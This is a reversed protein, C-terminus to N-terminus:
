NTLITKSYLLSIQQKQEKFDSSDKGCLSPFLPIGDEEKQKRGEALHRLYRRLGLVWSPMQKHLYQVIMHLDILTPSVPTEDPTKQVIWHQTDLYPSCYTFAPVEM